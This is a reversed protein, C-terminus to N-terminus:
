SSVKPKPDYGIREHIIETSTKAVFTDKATDSPSAGLLNNKAAQRKADMERKLQEYEQIDDLKLEIRTPDRRIMKVISESRESYQIDTTVTIV